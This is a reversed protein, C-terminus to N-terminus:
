TPINCRDVSGLFAIEVRTADGIRVFVGVKEDDYAKRVVKSGVQSSGQSVLGLFMPDLPTVLPNDVQFFSLYRVKGAHLEDLLGSSALARFTGGHGDPALAVRHREALLVKGDRSVTPMTGQEFFRVRSPALGFFGHQEFFAVTERHNIPSTMMLWLVDSGYTRNTALISEAFHQFLSKGKIPTIKFIGKPGAFGLRTGQGGAVTLAAVQNDRLLQIGTQRARQRAEIEDSARAITVVDPPAFDDTRVLSTEAGRDALVRRLLGWDVSGIDQLLEAREPGSLASWFHLLHHQDGDQLVQRAQDFDM